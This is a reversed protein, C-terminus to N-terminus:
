SFKMINKVICTIVLLGVGIYIYIPNYKMIYKANEKKIIKGVTRSILYMLTIIFSYAVTPNYYLSEIINGHMLSLFARTCGCGPCYIGWTEYIKCNFIDPKGFFSYVAYLILLLGITLIIAEYIYDDITREKKM